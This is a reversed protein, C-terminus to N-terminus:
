ELVLRQGARISAGGNRAALRDVTARRDGEPDLVGAISWLTDGPQVVYHSPAAGAREDIGPPQGAPSGTGAGASVETRRDPALLSVVYTATDVAAVILVFALAAGLLLRAAVPRSRTRALGPRASAAPLSPPRRAPCRISRPAPPQAITLM